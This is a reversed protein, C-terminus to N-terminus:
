KKKRGEEGEKLIRIPPGPPIPPLPKKSPEPAPKKRVSDQGAKM